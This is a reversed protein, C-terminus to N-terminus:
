VSPRSPLRMSSGPRGNKKSKSKGHKGPRQKEHWQCPRRKTPDMHNSKPKEPLIICTYSRGDMPKKGSFHVPRGKRKIEANDKKLIRDYLSPKVAFAYDGTFKAVDVKYNEFRFSKSTGLRSRHSPSITRTLEKLRASRIIQSGASFLRGTESVDSKLRQSTNPFLRKSKKLKQKHRQLRLMFFLLLLSPIYLM